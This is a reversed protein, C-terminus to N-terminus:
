AAGAASGAGDGPPQAEHDHDSQLRGRTADDIKGTVTLGADRQFAQLGRVTVEDLEDDLAGHEYGLNALRKKVGTVTDVPDLHGLQLTWTMKQAEDDDRMWLTAEVSTVHHPVYESLTGEADTANRITKGDYKLEYVRGAIPKGDEDRLKVQIFQPMARLRFTHRRDTDCTFERVKKDPIYLEDDPALVHPSPRKARLAANKEDNWIAEWSRFDHADAIRVITDGQKVKYTTGAM